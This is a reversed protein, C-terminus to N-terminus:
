KDITSELIYFIQDIIRRKSADWVLKDHLNPHSLQDETLTDSGRLEMLVEKLPELIHQSNAWMQNWEEKKTEKPKRKALLQNM